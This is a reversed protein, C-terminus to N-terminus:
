LKSLIALWRNSELHHMRSGLHLKQVDLLKSQEDGRHQESLECQKSGSNNFLSEGRTEQVGREEFSSNLSDM